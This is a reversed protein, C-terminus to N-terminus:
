NGETHEHIFDVLVQAVLQGSFVAEELTNAHSGIEILVAGTSLHQNYRRHRLWAPRTLQPYASEMADQLAAAFRLNERWNPMNLNGNDSGILMMVQAATEGAMGIVGGAVVDGSALGSVSGIAMSSGGFVLTNPGVTFTAPATFLGSPLSETISGVSLSTAGAAPAASLTGVFAYLQPPSTAIVTLATPTTTSPTTTQHSRVHGGHGHGWGGWGWGWGAGYYPYGYYGYGCYYPDCAYPYTYAYPSAYVQAKAPQGPIAAVALPAAALAGVALVKGLRTM